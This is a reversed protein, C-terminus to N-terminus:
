MSGSTPQALGMLMRITTTKGAGNPGLFGFFCGAPVTVTLGDVAFFGAYEKRLEVIEIAPPLLALSAPVLTEVAPLPPEPEATTSLPYGDEPLTGETQSDDAM